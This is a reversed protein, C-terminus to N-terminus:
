EHTDEGKIERCRLVIQACGLIARDNISAIRPDTTAMLMERRALMYDLAAEHPGDLWPEFDL